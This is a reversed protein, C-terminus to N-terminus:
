KGLRIEDHLGRWKQYNIIAKNFNDDDIEQITNFFDDDATCGGMGEGIYILLCDPNIERMKLLARYLTDDMYAWSCVIIDIDRGYKEIAEVCDINEIDTWYNQNHNWNNMGDWSFNDTAFIDISQQKLAFTLAGTGAMIELCKRNKIWKALPKIWNLSLLPFGVIEVFKDRRKFCDISWNNIMENPYCEPIQKNEVMKEITTIKDRISLSLEAESTIFLENAFSNM